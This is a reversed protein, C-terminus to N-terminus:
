EAMIIILGTIEIFDFLIEYEITNEHINVYNCTDVPVAPAPACPACSRVSKKALHYNEYAKLSFFFKSFRDFMPRSLSLFTFQAGM